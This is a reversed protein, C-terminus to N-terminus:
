DHRFSEDIGIGCLGFPVLLHEAFNCSLPDAREAGFGHAPMSLRNELAAIAPEESLVEVGVFVGRMMQEHDARGM